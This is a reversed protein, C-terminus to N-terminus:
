LNADLEEGSLAFFLNQLQHLFQLQGAATIEIGEDSLLRYNNDSSYIGFLLKPHYWGHDDGGQDIFNFGCKQFIETTLPIGEIDQLTGGGYDLKGDDTINIVTYGTADPSKMKVSRNIVCNGIRLENPKM